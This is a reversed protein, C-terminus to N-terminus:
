LILVGFQNSLGTKWPVSTSASVLFALM